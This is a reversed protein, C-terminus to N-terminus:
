PTPPQEPSIVPEAGSYNVPNLSGFVVPGVFTISPIEGAARLIALRHKPAARLAAAIIINRAAPDALLAARVIAEAADPNALVAAAVIQGAYPCGQSKGLSLNLRCIHIATATTQDALDMRLHVAATVCAPLDRVKKTVFVSGVARLFQGSNAGAVTAAGTKILAQDLENSFSRPNAVATASSVALALFMSLVLRCISTPSHRRKMPMGRNM